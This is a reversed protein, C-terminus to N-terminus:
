DDFTYLPMEKRLDFTVIVTYNSGTETDIKLSDGSQMIISSDSFQLYDKSSLSKQNVIYIDHTPDHAHEWYVSVTKASTTHNSLFLLSLEAVYGQPVTFLTTPTAAPITKGISHKM